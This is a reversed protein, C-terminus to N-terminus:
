RGGQMQQMQQMIRLQQMQEPTLTRFDVLTVDFELTANPPIAGPIGREGYALKPPLRLKYRGGKRMLQLGESFGEISSGPAVPLPLPQGGVNTDFVTGDELRGTYEILALDASTPHPGEGEEIVQYQLGSATTQYIQNSTGAWAIGAAALTLAGLGIWLRILSGKKIPRIPVATVSM